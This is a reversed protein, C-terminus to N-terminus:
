RAKAAIAWGDTAGAGAMIDARALTRITEPVRTWRPGVDFARSTLADTRM